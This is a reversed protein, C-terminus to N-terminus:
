YPHASSGPKMKQVISDLAEPDINSTRTGGCLAGRFGLYDPNLAKLQPIDCRRLSGALGSILNLETTLQVFTRLFEADLIHTLPGKSKDCTDLMAGVFGAERINQLTDLHFPQDAFLVAVLKHGSQTLPKLDNIVKSWDGNSFFGIKIFDVGTDAMSDVAKSILDGKMPLDGITASITKIHGIEDVITSVLSLQLAGLAGAKPDKLDVIDIDRKSVEIAEALNSVSALMKTM